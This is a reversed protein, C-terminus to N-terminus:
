KPYRWFYYESPKEATLQQYIGYAVAATGIAVEAAVGYPGLMSLQVLLGSIDGRSLQSVVSLVRMSERESDRLNSIIEKSTGKAKLLNELIKESDHVSSM